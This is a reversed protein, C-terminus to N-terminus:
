GRALFGIIFGALLLIFYFILRKIYSLGSNKVQLISYEVTRIKKREMDILILGHPRYVMFYELLQRRTGSHKPSTVKKGSKVEAIYIKNGKKIIMDARVTIKHPKGDVSLIYERESQLDVIEFGKSEVFEIAKFESKRAKEMKKRLSRNKLFRLINVTIIAGFIIGAMLLFIYDM